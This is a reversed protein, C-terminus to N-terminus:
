EEESHAYDQITFLIGSIEHLVERARELEAPELMEAIENEYCYHTGMIDLLLQRLAEKPMNAIYDLINSADVLIGKEHLTLYLEQITPTQVKM